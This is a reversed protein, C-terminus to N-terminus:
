EKPGRARSGTKDRGQAKLAKRHDRLESLKEPDDIDAVSRLEGDSFPGAAAEWGPARIGFRKALLATFIRSKEPGFGPLAKLRRLLDAGDTAELWLRSPDGDYDDVLKQCMAQTRKAMNAPFRHLAPKVAFIAAAEDPDMSAITHADFTGDIRQNLRYPGKFALEISIQQDLLMGMLLALPDSRLFDDIADDGTIRLPTLPEM